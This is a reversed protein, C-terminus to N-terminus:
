DEGPSIVLKDPNNRSVIEEEGKWSLKISIKTDKKKRKAKVDLKVLGHPNFEVRQYESGFVIHGQEFGKTLAQLYKVISESDQLSEHKFDEDSGM